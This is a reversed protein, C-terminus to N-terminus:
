PIRSARGGARVRAQEVLWGFVVPGTPDEIQETWAMEPHWQVGLVAWDGAAWEIGEVTGDETRATARWSPGPDGIAQHHLASTRARPGLLAHLVSGEETEVQHGEFPHEHAVGDVLRGGFAVALVQAGRCAGLLPLRADCAARVVALEAADRVADVDKAAAPDGGYAAPDVDGGGTLVLGDVLDLMGAAQVGPLLVPRAGLAVLADVYADPTGTVPLDGFPRPVQYGHAVVGIVPAGSGAM